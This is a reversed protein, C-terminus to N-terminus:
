KLNYRIKKIPFYIILKNMNHLVIAMMQYRYNKLLKIYGFLFLLYNILKRWQLKGSRRMVAFYDEVCWKLLLFLNFEFDENLVQSRFVNISKYILDAQATSYADVDKSVLSISGEHTRYFVLPANIYVVKEFLGAKIALLNDSYPSFGNGLVEMGGIQKYYNRDFIGCSGLTKIKGMLYSQIFRRGNYLEMKKELNDIKDPYIEGQVYSTFACPKFDSKVLATYVTQLLDPTYLDDDALTTFYKGSSSDFLSELNGFYGLNKSHNIYQIRKDEIGLTEADIIRETNDNGVLLEFDEFSQSLVSTVTQKLLEFRDYTTIGISFFPKMKKEKM